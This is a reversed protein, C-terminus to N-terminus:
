IQELESKMRKFTESDIEGRTYREILVDIGKSIADQKEYYGRKKTIFYLTSLSSFCFLCVLGIFFPFGHGPIHVLDRDVLM